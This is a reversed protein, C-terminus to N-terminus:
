PEFGQAILFTESWFRKKIGIRRAYTDRKPHNIFYQIFTLTDIMLLLGLTWYSDITFVNWNGLHDNCHRDRESDNIM